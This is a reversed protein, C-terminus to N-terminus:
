VDMVYDKFREPHHRPCSSRRQCADMPLSTETPPSQAEGDEYPVLLDPCDTVIKTPAQALVPVINQNNSYPPPTSIDELIDPPAPPRAQEENDDDDHSDSHLTPPLLPASMEVPVKFCESLRM